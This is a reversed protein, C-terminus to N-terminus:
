DLKSRQHFAGAAARFYLDPEDIARNNGPMGIEHYFMEAVNRSIITGGTRLGVTHRALV